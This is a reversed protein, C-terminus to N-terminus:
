VKEDSVDPLVAQTGMEENQRHISLPDPILTPVGVSRKRDGGGVTWQGGGVHEQFAYLFPRRTPGATLLNHFDWFLRMDIVSFTCLITFFTSALGLFM